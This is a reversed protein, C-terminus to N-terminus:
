GLLKARRRRSNGASTLKGQIAWQSQRRSLEELEDEVDMFQVLWQIRQEKDSKFKGLIEGRADHLVQRRKEMEQIKERYKM